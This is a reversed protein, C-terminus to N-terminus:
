ARRILILRGVGVIVYVCEGVLLLVVCCWKLDHGDGGGSCQGGDVWALDDRCGRVM